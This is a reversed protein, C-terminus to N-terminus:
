NISVKKISNYVNVADTINFAETYSNGEAGVTILIYEQNDILSLSALCLGAEGTYGTKGGLIEGNMLGKNKLKRFMTSYYTIGEEHINTPETTYSYSNFIKMFTENEMANKMLTALDEITSYHNEDHLGTTNVFNTNEMGLEKAKGNMMQAFKEESGAIEDALGISADAGSPLMIGYLLDIAKVEENPELGAMSANAKKLVPFMNEDLVIKRDLDELNEIAVITTMIKTLSAPFIRDKINKEMLVNNDELRILIANSSHLTDIQLDLVTETLPTYTYGRVETEIEENNIIEVSTDITNDGMVLGFSIIALILMVLSIIRFKRM